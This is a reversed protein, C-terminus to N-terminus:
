RWRPPLLQQYPSPQPRARFYAATALIGLALGGVFALGTITGPHEDVEYRVRDVASTIPPTVREALQEGVHNVQNLLTPAPAYERVVSEIEETSAKTYEGLFKEVADRDCPLSHLEEDGIHPWRTHIADKVRSWPDSKWESVTGTAQETQSM